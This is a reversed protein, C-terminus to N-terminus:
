ISELTAVDTAANIAAIKSRLAVIQADISQLRTVSEAPATQGALEALRLERMARQSSAELQDIQAQVGSRKVAQAQLLTPGPDADLYGLPPAVGAESITHCSRDALWYTFGRFDPVVQWTSNVWQAAENAGLAPPAITVCRAPILFEGPTMPDPRAFKDTNGDWLGIEDTQYIQM